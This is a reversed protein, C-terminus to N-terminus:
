RAAAVSILAALPLTAAVNALALWGYNDFRWLAHVLMMVPFAYIYMGYSYDPWQASVARSQATLFGGCLVAYGMFVSDLHAYFSFHLAALYAAFLFALVWWSLFIRKRFIYAAIGLAFMSWLRDVMAINYIVGGAAPEGGALLQWALAFLLSFPLVVYKMAREGAFGVLGLLALLLYCRVEWPITWLSGNINCLVGDCMVGTLHYGGGQLTLNSIMFRLTPGSFYSPLDVNTLAIGGLVCLMVSVALAPWLRALRARAFALVNGRRALSAYVLFGSLFFFGDVAFASIPKGLWPAFPDDATMGHILGYSHTFIVSSALILRVLTFNNRDSRLNDDNLYM